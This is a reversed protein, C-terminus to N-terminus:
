FLHYIHVYKSFTKMCKEGITIDQEASQVAESVTTIFFSAHMYECPAQM